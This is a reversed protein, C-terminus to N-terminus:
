KKKQHTYLAYAGYSVLGAAVLGLGIKTWSYGANSQSKVKGKYQQSIQDVTWDYGPLNKKGDFADIIENIRESRLRNSNGLSDLVYYRVNGKVRSVVLTIWHGNDQGSQIKKAHEFFSGVYSYMRGIFTNTPRTSRSGGPLYVLVVGICDQKTKRILSYLQVLEESAVAHENCGGHYEGYTAVLLTPENALIGNGRQAKVLKQMEDTQVWSGNKEQSVRAIVTDPSDMRYCRGEFDIKFDIKLDGKFYADLTARNTFTKVKDKLQRNGQVALKNCREIIAAYIEKKTAKYHFGDEWIEPHEFTPLTISGTCEMFLDFDADAGEKSLALSSFIMERGVRRATSENRIKGIELRWPALKTGFLENAHSQSSLSKLVARKGDKNILGQATLAGNRFAHYGCSAGRLETDDGVVMQNVSKIQIRRSDKSDQALFLEGIDGKSLQSAYGYDVLHNKKAQRLILEKDCKTICSTLSLGIYLLGYYRKM